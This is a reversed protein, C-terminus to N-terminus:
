NARANTKGGMEQVKDLFANLPQTNPEGDINV